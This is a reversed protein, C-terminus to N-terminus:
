EFNLILAISNSTLRNPNILVGSQTNGVYQNVLGQSIRLEPSFKFYRFFQDLGIGYEVTFDHGKLQLNESSSKKLNVANMWKMGAYIYARNNFRRKSKLKFLLPLEIGTFNSNLEIKNGNSQVDQYILGREYLAVNLGSKIEWLDSLIYSVTGGIQLGSPYKSNKSALLTPKFPASPVTTQHNFLSFYNFGFLFGFHFDTNDYFEKNVRRYSIKQALSDQNIGFIFLIVFLKMLTLKKM